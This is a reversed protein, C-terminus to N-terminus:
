DRRTRGILYLLQVISVLAAAVYTLAAATLVQRAGKEDLGTPAHGAPIHGLLRIPRHRAPRVGGPQPLHRDHLASGLDAPHLQRRARAGCPVEHPFLRVRETGCPRGRPLRRRCVRRVGGPFERRLSAPQQGAPRLLRDPPGLCAHYRGDARRQHRAYAKGGTSWDRRFVWAGEVM